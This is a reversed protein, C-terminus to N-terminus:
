PNFRDPWRWRSVLYPKRAEFVASLQELRSEVERLGANETELAYSAIWGRYLPTMSRLLHDRSIMRLRHGLAFDYVMSAWLDDPMHFQATPLRALRKLELLTTPPLVNGWIEQFNQTGLHFSEIMPQVDLPGPEVPASEPEGFWPVPKSGRIRQWFPANLETDSFAAGLVTALLSSLDTRQAPMQVRAGLHSECIRLGHCAAASAVSAVPHIDYGRSKGQRHALLMQLLKGSLGFDPGMPNQIREGYLARSFPALISRNLLGETRQRDYRPMVLDFGLELLPQVLQYVVTQVHAVRLESGIVVCARAALKSSVTLVALYSDLVGQLSANANEPEALNVFAVGSPESEKSEAPNPFDPKIAFGRGLVVARHTAKLTSLVDVVAAPLAGPDNGPDLIGIVLDAGGIRQIQELEPHAITGSAV